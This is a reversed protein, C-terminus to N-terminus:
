NEKKEIEEKKNDKIDSEEIEEKKNDKIDSEKIEEMSDYLDKLMARCAYLLSVGDGRVEILAMRRDLEAVFEKANGIKIKYM